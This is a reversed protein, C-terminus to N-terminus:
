AWPDSMSMAFNSLQLLVRSFDGGEIQEYLRHYYDTIITSAQPNSEIPRSGGTAGWLKKFAAIRAHHNSAWGNWKEKLDLWASHADFDPSDAYDSLLQELIKRVAATERNDLLDDVTMMANVEMPQLKMSLFTKFTQFRQATLASSFASDIGEVAFLQILAASIQSQTKQCSQRDHDVKRHLTAATLIRHGRLFMIEGELFQLFLQRQIESLIKMKELSADVGTYTLALHGAVPAIRKLESLLSDFFATVNEGPAASTDRGQLKKIFQGFVGFVNQTAPTGM